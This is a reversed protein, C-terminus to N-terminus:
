QMKEAIEPPVGCSARAILERPGEDLFCIVGFEVEVVDMLRGLALTLVQESDRSQAFASLIQNTATLHRNRQLIERQMRALLGFVLHSFVFVGVVMITIPVLWRMWSVPPSELYRARGFELFFLFLAPSVITVWKLRQLNM